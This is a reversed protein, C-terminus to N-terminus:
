TPEVVHVGFSSLSWWRTLKVGHDSWMGAPGPERLIKCGHWPGRQARCPLAEFDEWCLIPRPDTHAVASGQRRQVQHEAGQFCNVSIHWRRLSSAKLLHTKDTSHYKDTVQGKLFQRRRPAAEPMNDRCGHSPGVVLHSAPHDPSVSLTPQKDEGVGLCCFM